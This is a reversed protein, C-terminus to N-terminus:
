GYIKRPIFSFIRIYITSKMSIKTRGPETLKTVQITAGLNLQTRKSFYILYTGTFSM